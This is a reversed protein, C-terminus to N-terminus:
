PVNKNQPLQCPSLSPSPPPLPPPPKLSSACSVKPDVTLQLSQAHVLLSLHSRGSCPQIFLLPNTSFPSLPQLGVLHFEPSYLVAVLPQNHGQQDDACCMHRWYMPQHQVTVVRNRRPEYIMATPHAHSAHAWAKETITQMCRNNRLDWLKIISDSSM